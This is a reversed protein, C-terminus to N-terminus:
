RYTLLRLGSFRLADGLKAGDEGPVVALVTVVVSSGDHAKLADTVDVVKTQPILGHPPRSDFPDRTEPVRCHGPDGFCGGHGFITFMGAYGDTRDPSRDPDGDTADLFVRATYSDGRHEVGYFVLDARRFSDGAATSPLEIAGSVFHDM